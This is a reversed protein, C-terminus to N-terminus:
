FIKMALYNVLSWVMMANVQGCSNKVQMVLEHYVLHIKNKVKKEWTWKM